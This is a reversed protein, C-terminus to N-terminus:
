SSKKTITMNWCEYSFLPVNSSFGKQYNLFVQNDVSSNYSAYNSGFTIKKLSGNTDEFWGNGTITLESGGVQIKTIKYEFRFEGKFGNVTSSTNVNNSNNSFAINAPTAVENMYVNFFSPATDTSGSFYVTNSQGSASILISDGVNLSNAPIVNSGSFTQWVPTLVGTAYTQFPQLTTLITKDENGTIGTASIVGGSIDIGSGSTIAVPSASGDWATIVNEEASTTIVGSSIDMLGTATVAVPSSSGDWLTVVNAQGDGTYSVSGGSIDIDSGATVNIPANSGDWLAVVNEEASTTIVGSSIDMLGTSTIAIPSASGDWSTVVNQQGSGVYSISGSSISIDSGATVNVPADSGDWLAVVNEEASTTIVGATIDMLGTATVAIPSASGDWLTVVNSQGSGTYSISGNSIDIDSGATINVPTASGDWLTVINQEASTSIVGATIDILGTATIAVPSASGSWSTVVNKEADGAYSIVGATIDITPSGIVNVGTTTGDWTLVVQDGSDSGIGGISIASFNLDQVTVNSSNTLNQVYVDLLDSDMLELTCQISLSQFAPSANGFYATQESKTTGLAVGNKYISFKLDAADLDLTATLSVSIQFERTDTNIYKLTGDSEEFGSLDGSLYTSNVKVPTLNDVIVTEVANNQFFSEGYAADSVLSNFDSEYLACDWVPSGPTGRNVCSRDNDQQWYRGGNIPSVLTSAQAFTMSPEPRSVETTSSFTIPFGNTIDTNADASGAVTNDYVSQYDVAINAIMFNLMQLRSERSSLSGSASTEYLDTLSQTVLPPLDIIKEESM